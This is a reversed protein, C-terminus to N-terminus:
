GAYIIKRQQLFEQIAQDIVAAFAPTVDQRNRWEDVLATHEEDMRTLTMPQMNEMRKDSQSAPRKNTGSNPNM